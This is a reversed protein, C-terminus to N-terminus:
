HEPIEAWGAQLRTPGCSPSPAPFRLMYVDCGSSDAQRNKQGSGTPCPRVGRQDILTLQWGRWTALRDEYGYESCIYRKPVRRNTTSHSPPPYPPFRSQGPKPRRCRPSPTTSRSAPGRTSSRSVSSRPRVCRAMSMSTPCPSTSPLVQDSYWPTALENTDGAGSITQLDLQDITSGISPGLDRVMSSQFVAGGNSVDTYQPRIEDADAV